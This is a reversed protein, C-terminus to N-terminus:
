KFVEVVRPRLYSEFSMGGSRKLIAGRLAVAASVFSATRFTNTM